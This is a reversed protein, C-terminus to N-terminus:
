VWGWFFGRWSRRWFKGAVREDFCMAFGTGRKDASSCFLWARHLARLAFIQPTAPPPRPIPRKGAFQKLNILDFPGCSTSKCRTYQTRQASSPLSTKLLPITNQLHPSLPNFISNNLHIFLYPQTSYHLPMITIRLFYYLTIPYFTIYSWIFPSFFEM